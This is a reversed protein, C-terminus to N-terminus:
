GFAGFSIMNLLKRMRAASPARASPEARTAGSAASARVAVAVIATLAVTELEQVVLAVAAPNPVHDNAAALVVVEVIVTVHV